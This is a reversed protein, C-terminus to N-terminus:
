CTWKIGGSGDLGDVRVFMASVLEVIGIVVDVTLSAGIASVCFRTSTCVEFTICSVGMVEFVFTTYGM